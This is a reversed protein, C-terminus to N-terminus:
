VINQFDILIKRIERSYKNIVTLYKKARDIDEKRMRIKGSDWDNYVQNSIRKLCQSSVDLEGYISM